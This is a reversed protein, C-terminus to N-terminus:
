ERSKMQHRNERHEPMSISDRPTSGTRVEWLRLIKFRSRSGFWFDCLRMQQMSHNPFSRILTGPEGANNLRVSAVEFAPGTSSQAPLQSALGCVVCVSIAAIARSTAM